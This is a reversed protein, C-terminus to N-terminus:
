EVDLKKTFVYRTIVYHVVAFVASVAFAYLLVLWIFRFMDSAFNYPSSIDMNGLFAIFDSNTRGFRLMLPLLAPISLISEATSLVLYAVVGGLIRNRTIRTGLALSAYVSLLNFVTGLLVSVILMGAFSWVLDGPIDKMTVMVTYSEGFNSFSMPFETQGLVLGWFGPILIAACAVAVVVSAIGYLSHVILRGTVHTGMKVPLTFSLYSENAMTGQYFRVVAYVFALLVVAVVLLVGFTTAFGNLVMALPEWIKPAVFFVLRLFAAAVLALGFFPWMMRGMSRSEYKMVKGLM